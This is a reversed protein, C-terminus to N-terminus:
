RYATIAISWNNRHLYGTSLPYCVLRTTEKQVPTILPLEPFRIAISHGLPTPYDLRELSSGFCPSCLFDM